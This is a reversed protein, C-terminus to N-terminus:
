YYRPVETGRKKLLYSIAEPPFARPTATLTAVTVAVCDATVSEVVPVGEVVRASTVAVGVWVRILLLKAETAALSASILTSTAAMM